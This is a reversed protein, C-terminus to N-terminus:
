PAGTEAARRELRALFEALALGLRTEFARAEAARCAAAEAEAADRAALRDELRTELAGIRRDIAAVAADEAAKMAAEIAERGLAEVLAGSRRAAEAAFRADIVARMGEGAERVAGMVAAEGAELLLVRAAPLAAPGVSAERLAGGADEPAPEAALDAPGLWIAESGLAEALAGQLAATRDEGALGALRGGLDGDRAAFAYHFPALRYVPGAVLACLGGLAAAEGALRAPDGIAEHDVLRAAVLDALAAAAAAVEEAAATGAAAPLSLRLPIGAGARSPGDEPSLGDERRLEVAM